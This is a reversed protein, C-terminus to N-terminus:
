TIAGRFRDDGSPENQNILISTRQILCIISNM